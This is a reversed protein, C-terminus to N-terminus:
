HPPTCFTGGDEKFGGSDWSKSIICPAIVRASVTNHIWDFSVESIISLRAEDILLAGITLFTM